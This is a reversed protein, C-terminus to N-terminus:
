EGPISPKLIGKTRLFYTGHAIADPGHSISHDSPPEIGAYKYGIAKVTNPQLFYPVKRMECIMEIAGINKSTQNRSWNKQKQHAHNKYDEVILAKLTPKVHEALFEAQKVQKFQGFAVLIGNEDFEAWGSTEGPDIALYSPESSM